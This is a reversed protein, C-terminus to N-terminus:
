RDRRRRRNVMKGPMSSSGDKPPAGPLFEEQRPEDGQEARRYQRSRGNGTDKKRPRSIRLTESYTRMEKGSPRLSDISAPM